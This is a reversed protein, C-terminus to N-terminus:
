FFKSEKMLRSYESNKDIELEQPNGIEVINGDKIVIVKKFLSVLSSDHTVLIISMKKKLDQISSEIKKQTSPDLASTPEDLFLIKPNRYLERALFLRQKQGGSLNAGGENLVECWKNKSKEITEIFQAKSAAEKILLMEKETYAKDSVFNMTINNIITDTFIVNEQTVLGINNRWSNKNDDELLSEDISLRGLTPSLVGALIDLLTSKGSGSSGVIALSEGEIIDLSINNLTNETNGSYRFYIGDAKLLFKNKKSISVDKKNINAPSSIYSEISELGGLYELSYQLYNQIGMISTFARYLLVMAVLLLSINVDIVGLQWYAAIGLLILAVPERISQTIAAARGIKKQFLGSDKIFFNLRTFLKKHQNTARLYKHGNLIQLFENNISSNKSSLDKSLNSVFANLFRFIALVILGCILFFITIDQSTMFSLSLYIIANFAHLGLQSFHYFGIVSRGAQENILNALNGSDYRLHEEYSAETSRIYIAQRLGALLIGRCNANIYLSLYIFFGKLIIMIAVFILMDNISLEIDLSESIKNIFNIFTSDETDEIKTDFSIAALLPIMLMISVSDLIGAVSSLFLTVYLKAGLYRQFTLIYFNLKSILM